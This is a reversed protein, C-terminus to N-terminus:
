SFESYEIRILEDIVLNRGKHTDMIELPKENSFYPNKTNLWEIFRDKNGDFSILGMKYVEGIEIFVESVPVDM